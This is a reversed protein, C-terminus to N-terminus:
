WVFMYFLYETSDIIKALDFSQKKKKWSIRIPTIAPTMRRIIAMSAPTPTNRRILLYNKGQLFVKEVCTKTQQLRRDAVGAAFDGGGGAMSFGPFFFREVAVDVLLVPDFGPIFDGSM